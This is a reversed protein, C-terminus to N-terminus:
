VLSSSAHRAFGSYLGVAPFGHSVLQEGQFLVAQPSFVGDVPLLKVFPEDM